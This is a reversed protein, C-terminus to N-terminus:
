QRETFVIFNKSKQEFKAASPKEKNKMVKQHPIKDVFIPSQPTFDSDSDSSPTLPVSVNEYLHDDHIEEIPLDLKERFLSLM